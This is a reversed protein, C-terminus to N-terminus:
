QIYDLSIGLAKDVESGHTILAADYRESNVLKLHWKLWLDFRQKFEQFRTYNVFAAASEITLPVWSIDM